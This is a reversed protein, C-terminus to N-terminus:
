TSQNKHWEVIEERYYMLWAGFRRSNLLLPHKKLLEKMHPIQEDVPMKSIGEWDIVPYPVGEESIRYRPKNM